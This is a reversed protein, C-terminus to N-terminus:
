EVPAGVGCDRRCDRRHPTALKRRHPTALKCHQVARIGLSDGMSGMVSDSMSDELFFHFRSWGGPYDRGIM